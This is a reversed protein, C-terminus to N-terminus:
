FLRVEKGLSTEYFIASTLDARQILDLRTFLVGPVIVGISKALAEMRSQRDVIILLRDLPFGDFNRQYASIKTRLFYNLNEQGRDFEVALLRNGISLIADPIIPHKWQIGPLEWYAFFYKLCGSLEAAIRM